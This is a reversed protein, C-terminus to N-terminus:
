STMVINFKSQANSIKVEKKYSAKIDLAKVAVSVIKSAGDNKRLLLWIFFWWDFELTTPTELRV